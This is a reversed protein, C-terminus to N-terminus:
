CHTHLNFKLNLRPILHQLTFFLIIFHVETREISNTFIRDLGNQINEYAFLVYVLSVSCSEVQRIIERIFTTELVVVNYFPSRAKSIEIIHKKLSISFPASLKFLSRIASQLTISNDM